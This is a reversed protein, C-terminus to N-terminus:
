TFPQGKLLPLAPSPHRSLEQNTQSSSGTETPTYNSSVEGIVHGQDFDTARLQTQQFQPGRYPQFQRVPAHVGVPPYVYTTGRSPFNSFNPGGRGGGGRDANWGGRRTATQRPPMPLPDPNMASWRHANKWHGHEGCATCAGTNRRRQIEHEPLRPSSHQAANLDMPDGGDAPTTNGTDRSSPPRNHSPGGTNGKEIKNQHARNQLNRAFIDMKKSWSKYDDPSPVDSLTTVLDKMAPSILKQLLDVKQEPTKKAKLAHEDFESKWSWYNRDNQQFTDLKNKSWQTLDMTRYHSGLHDLMQEWNTFPLDPDNPNERLVTLAPQVYDWAKDTLLDSVHGIRSKETDFFELDRDFVGRIKAEFVEFSQQREAPSGKGDFKEPDTSERKKRTVFGAGARVGTILNDLLAKNQTALDNKQTTMDAFRSQLAKYENQLGTLLNEANKVNDYAERLGAEMDQLFAEENKILNEFHLQTDYNPVYDAGRQLAWVINPCRGTNAFLTTLYERPNQADQPNTMDIDVM